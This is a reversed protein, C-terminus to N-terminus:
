SRPKYRRRLLAVRVQKTTLTSGFTDADESVTGPKRDEVARIIDLTEEDMRWGQGDRDIYDPQGQDITQAEHDADKRLRM